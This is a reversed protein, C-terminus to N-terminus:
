KRCDHQITQSTTQKSKAMSQALRKRNLPWPLIHKGTESRLQSQSLPILLPHNLSTALHKLTWTGSAYTLDTQWEVVYYDNPVLALGNSVKSILDLYFLM